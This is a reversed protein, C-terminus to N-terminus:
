SSPPQRISASGFQRKVIGSQPEFWFTLDRRLPPSGPNASLSIGVSVRVTEHSQNGYYLRDSATIVTASAKRPIGGSTMSGNWDWKDGFGFPFQLLPLPPNYREEGSYLLSFQRPGDEYEETEFVEGHAVLDFRLTSGM